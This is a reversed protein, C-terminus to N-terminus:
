LEAGQRHKSEEEDLSEHEEDIVKGVIQFAKMLAKIDFASLKGVSKGLIRETFQFSRQNSIVAKETLELFFIRNDEPNIVKKIYGKRILSKISSSIVPPSVQLYKAVNMVTHDNNIKMRELFGLLLMERITVKNQSRIRLSREMLLYSQFYFKLFLERFTDGFIKFM